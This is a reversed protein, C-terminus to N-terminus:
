NGLSTVRLIVGRVGKMKVGKQRMGTKQAARRKKRRM